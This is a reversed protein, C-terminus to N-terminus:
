QVQMSMIEQYAAVAVMKNCVQLMAQNSQKIYLVNLVSTLRDAIQEKETMTEKLTNTFVCGLAAVRKQPPTCSIILQRSLQNFTQFAGPLAPAGVLTSQGM